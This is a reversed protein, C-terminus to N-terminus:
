RTKKNKSEAKSRERQVYANWVDLSDPHIFRHRDVLNKMTVEYTKLFLEELSLKGVSARLASLNGRTRLPEIKDAIYLIMDLDSMDPVAATHRAIALIIDNSLEPFEQAVAYAGTEAHLLAVMDEEFGSYTINFECARSVLEEDSFNKDWDHLLGAIRAKESDAGYVQAIHAATDAVSISHILRYETLRQELGRRARTYFDFSSDPISENM